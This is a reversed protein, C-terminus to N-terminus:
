EAMIAAMEMNKSVEIRFYTLPIHVHCGRFGTKNIIISRRGKVKFM